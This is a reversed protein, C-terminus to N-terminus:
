LGLKKHEEEKQYVLQMVCDKALQLEYNSWPLKCKSNKELYDKLPQYSDPLNLFKKRLKDVLNDIKKRRRENYNDIFLEELYKKIDERFLRSSLLNELYKSNMTKQNPM